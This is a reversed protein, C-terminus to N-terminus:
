LYIEEKILYEKLQARTHALMHTVKRETFGCREAIAINSEFYFYKLLFVRRVVEKQKNLFISISKGIEEDNRGPAYREDPLIDALEDLAMVMDSSRKKAKQKRFKDISISRVIKSIYAKFNDPRTPPIKNWVGLYTDNVCEESDQLNNLINYAIKHCLKGYKIDTENIAQENREIYLEIIKKDDIINGEEFINEIIFDDKKSSRRLFNINKSNYCLFFLVAKAMRKKDDSDM